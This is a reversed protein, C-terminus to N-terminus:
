PTTDDDSLAEALVAIVPVIDQAPQLNTGLGAAADRLAEVQLDALRDLEGDM